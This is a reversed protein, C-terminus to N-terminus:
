SELAFVVLTVTAYSPEIFDSFEARVQNSIPSCEM